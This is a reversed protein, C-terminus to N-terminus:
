FSFTSFLSDTIPQILCKANLSGYFFILHFADPQMSYKFTRLCEKKVTHRSLWDPELALMGIVVACVTRNGIVPVRMSQVNFM